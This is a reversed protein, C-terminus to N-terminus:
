EMRIVGVVISLSRIDSKPISFSPYYEKNDSSCIVFEKNEADEFLRKVLVGQSSDIVYVKGWQFFLIDKITKLALIDGNSYKPYMSSGSVRILYEVGIKKFEPIQYQEYKTLELGDNDAVSYGAIADFPIMPISNYKNNPPHEIEISINKKKASLMEGDGLSDIWSYNFINGFAHNVKHLFSKTLYKENGNFASSVSSKNLGAKNVIDQQNKIQKISVLHRFMADLVKLKKEKLYIQKPEIISTESHENKYIDLLKIASQTINRQGQEWSQVARITAGAIKALDSQSLGFKTRYNKIDLANM